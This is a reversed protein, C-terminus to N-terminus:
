NRIKKTLWKMSEKFIHTKCYFLYYLIIPVICCIIMRYVVVNLINGKYISCIQYTIFCIICTIMAYVFHQVFFDKLGEKFYYKFLVIASGVFGFIFITIITALLIGYIGWIKVLVYNLVINSVAELITRNRNEWWLGAADSYMARIDGMKLLYFYLSFLIAVGNSFLLDKGVWLEMFPQYLCVCCVTCFGAIIMYVYNIITMDNFNKEITDIKMSNGVGALLSSSIVSLIGILATIVFFYNSYMATFTLGLFASIFISDFSNRTTGCIRYIMLGFIKEKIENKNEKDLTGYCKYEPFIRDVNYSILINNLITSVITMVLYFYFNKTIVLVMIQLVYMLGQAILSILNIIDIRQFANLLSTKYAYLWYSLITNFLYIYYVVYINIEKPYDGKILYKIFFSVVIGIGFLIWGINRYVKKYYNLLACITDKDNEAIPKYM